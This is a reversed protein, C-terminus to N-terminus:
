RRAPTAVVVIRRRVLEGLLEDHKGFARLEIGWAGPPVSVRWPPASLVAQLYVTDDQMSLDDDPVLTVEYRSTGPIPEWGIEVPSTVTAVV